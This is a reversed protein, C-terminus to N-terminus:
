FLARDGQGEGLRIALIEEGGGRWEAEGHGLFCPPSVIQEEQFLSDLSGSLPLLKDLSLRSSLLLSSSPRPKFGLEAVYKSHSRPSIM